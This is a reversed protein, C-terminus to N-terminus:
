AECAVGDKDRDSGANAKYIATSVKFATVPKSTGKVKDHAGARAVGHKYVTHMDTCNDFSRAAASASSVPVVALTAVLTLTLLLPRARM